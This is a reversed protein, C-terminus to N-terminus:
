KTRTVMTDCSLLKGIQNSAHEAKAKAKHQFRFPQCDIIVDNNPSTVLEHIGCMTTSILYPHTACPIRVPNAQLDLTMGASSNIRKENTVCTILSNRGYNRVVLRSSFLPGHVQM